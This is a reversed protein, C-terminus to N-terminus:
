RDRRHAEKLARELSAISIKMYRIRAQQVTVARACTIISVFSGAALITFLIAGEIAAGIGLILWFVALCLWWLNDKIKM